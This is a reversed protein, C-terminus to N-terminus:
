RDQDRLWLALGGGSRSGARRWEGFVEAMIEGTVLRGLELYRAPDATFKKRCGESCFFYTHGRFQESPKGAHPDVMMGCVPDTAVHDDKSTRENM